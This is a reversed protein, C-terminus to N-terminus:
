VAPPRRFLQAGRRGARGHCPVLPERQRLSLKDGGERDGGGGSRGDYPIDTTGILSFRQEYPIVFVIRRDPNQLLFAFDGDHLRPVIIHSGQVLRVNRTGNQGLKAALVEGVWPGAANM